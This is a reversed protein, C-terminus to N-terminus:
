SSPVKPMLQGRGTVSIETFSACQGSNQLYVRSSTVGNSPNRQLDLPVCAHNSATSAERQDQWAQRQPAFKRRRIPERMPNARSRLTRGSLQLTDHIPQSKHFATQNTPDGIYVFSFRAFYLRSRKHYALSRVPSFHPCASGRMRRRPPSPASALRVDSLREVGDHVHQARSSLPTVKGLIKRRAGSDITVKAVPATVACQIVDMVSEIFFTALLGAALGAGERGDDVALAHSHSARFFTPRSRDARTRDPFFILLV